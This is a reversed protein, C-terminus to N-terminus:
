SVGDGHYKGLKSSLLAPPRIEHLSLQAVLAPIMGLVSM